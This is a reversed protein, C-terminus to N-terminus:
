KPLMKGGSAGYASQSYSPSSLESIKKKFEAIRQQFFLVRSNLFEIRQATTSGTGKQPCGAYTTSGTVSDKKVCDPVKTMPVKFKMKPREQTSSSVGLVESQPVLNFIQEIVAVQAEMNSVHEAETMAHAHMSFGFFAFAGVSVFFLTTQIRTSITIMHKYTERYTIVKLNKAFFIVGKQTPSRWVSWPVRSVM